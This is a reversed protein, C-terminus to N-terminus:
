AFIGRRPGQDADGEHSSWENGQRLSPIGPCRRYSIAEYCPRCHTWIGFMGDDLYGSRYQPTGLINARGKVIDVNSLLTILCIFLPICVKKRAGDIPSPVWEALMDVLGSAEGFFQDLVAKLLPRVDMKYM